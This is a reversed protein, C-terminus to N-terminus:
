TRWTKFAVFWFLFPFYVVVCCRRPRCKFINKSQPPQPHSPPDSPARKQFIAEFQSDRPRFLYLFSHWVDVRTIANAPLLEICLYLLSIFLSFLNCCFILLAVFVYIVKLYRNWSPCKSDRSKPSNFVSEQRGSLKPLGRYSIFLYIDFLYLFYLQFSLFDYPLLM